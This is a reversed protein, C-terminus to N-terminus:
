YNCYTGGQEMKFKLVLTVWNNHSYEKVIIFGLNQYGARIRLAQKETFGSIILIGRNSIIKAIDFRIQDIVNALINVIILDFKSTVRLKYAEKIIDLMRIKVKSRCNNKILNGTSVEISKKDNDIGIGECKWIKNALISLLGSGTGIDLFNKVNIIKQLDLLANVCGSTTEHHGTGFALGENICINIKKYKDKKYGDNHIYLGMFRLPKLNKQSELVWNKNEVKKIKYDQSTGFLESVTKKINSMDKESFLLSLYLEEDSTFQSISLVNHTFLLDDDFESISKNSKILIDFIDTM